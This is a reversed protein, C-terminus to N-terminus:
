VDLRMGMWLIATSGFYQVNAPFWHVTPSIVMERGEWRRGGNEERGELCLGRGEGFIDLTRWIVGGIVVVLLALKRGLM